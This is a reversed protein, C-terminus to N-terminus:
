NLNSAIEISSRAVEWVEDVPIPPAAKGAVCDVFKRACETQGKDQRWLSLNKGGGWTRLRRFNDIQYIQGDVFVDLREKPFSKHGNALYHVTGFSGNEFRLTISAIDDGAGGFGALAIGTSSLIPADALFRLLDIFHCAEGIIRRGGVDADQTWHDQPISGANVTMVFTPVGSAASINSKLATVLPSFRRNFGIMLVPKESIGDWTQQLEDLETMTLCLPKECFVSKGASLADSVYHAHSDHRTAIVVADTHPDNLIDGTETTASSFGHKRGQRVSRTGSSAALMRLNCGAEKFAPILIRGAYAGAGIFSIGVSEKKINRRAFEVSHTPAKDKGVTQNPYTLAIGLVSKDDALLDYAEAANEITFRHTLLEATKIGGASMTDLVAEMNRQETWRVFGFPYDRGKEEYESDYRGPGYSCSVQFSLEKEYFDARSLELGTVGVLIIRGRKRSMQAAQSVPDNSSTSATILVGDMGRNRSFAMAKGVPNEGSSLDVVEAGLRKALAVRSADNDIGLVRCGNAQLLQATVLGILGMGIVAFSEGVTPNALRLGQLGIAGLVGFVAEDDSIEDPVKICLNRPVSVWEAHPGNSLVRDGVELGVVGAGVEKVVGVNCYGMPLPEDLKSHVAEYTALLGDARIKELVMNVRDPQQRIRSVWGARAFEVLMRETGASILSVNTRILVRGRDAHPVPVDEVRTDGSSLDQFVQKM